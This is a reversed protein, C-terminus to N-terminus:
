ALPRAGSRVHQPRSHFRRLQEHRAPRVSRRHGRGIRREQGAHRPFNPHSLVVSVLEPGRKGLPTNLSQDTGAGFGDLSVGFGAVRVKQM